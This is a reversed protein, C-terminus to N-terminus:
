VLRLYTPFVEVSFNAMIGTCVVNIQFLFFVFVSFTSNTIFPLTLGSAGGIIHYLVVLFKKSIVKLLFSNVINLVALCSSFVILTVYTMNEVTDICESETPQFLIFVIKLVNIKM